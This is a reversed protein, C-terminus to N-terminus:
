KCSCAADCEVDGRARAPDGFVCRMRILNIRVSRHLECENSDDVRSWCVKDRAKLAVAFSMEDLTSQLAEFGGFVRM